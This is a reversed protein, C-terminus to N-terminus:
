NMTICKYNTAFMSLNSSQFAWLLMWTKGSLSYPFLLVHFGFFSLLLLSLSLSIWPSAVFIVAIASAIHSYFWKLHTTLEAFENLKCESLIFFFFCFFSAFWGFKWSPQKGNCRMLCHWTVHLIDAVSHCEWLLIM